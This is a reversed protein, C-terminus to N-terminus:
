RGTPTERSAISVVVKLASGSSMAEYGAAVEEFPLVSDILTSVDLRGAATDEVFQELYHRAPAVGGAIRTENDFIRMPALEDVGHPVGVFGMSGGPRVLSLAGDFASQLGVCEIVRDALVDDNIARLRESVDDDRTILVTEIGHEAAVSLRSIQEGFLIVREAGIRASAIAASIGVAGDGVVAVVDGDGVGALVAGHTGTAFVDTLPVLKRALEADIDSSDWPLKVLTADAYPVRIREAQAGSVEKGWRGVNACHSHLGRRCETCTGDSYVFPAIVSDGPVVSRVDRGIERVRGIFEHGTSGAPRNLLGRYGWLDSGCIGAFTIDVIVDLPDVIVPDDVERVDIRGAGSFWATLM